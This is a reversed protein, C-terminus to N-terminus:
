DPNPEDSKVPAYSEIHEMFSIFNSEPIMVSKSTYFFGIKDKFNKIFLGINQPNKFRTKIKENKMLETPTSLKSM